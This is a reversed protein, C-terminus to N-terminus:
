KLQGAKRVYFQYDRHIDSLVTFDTRGMFFENVASDVGFKFPNPRLHDNYDDLFMVGGPKLMKWGWELDHRAGEYTHDGDIYIFDYECGSEFLCPLEERSDRRLKRFRGYYEDMNQDFGEKYPDQFSDVVDLFLRPYAHMLHVAARGEYTGVELALPQREFQGRSLHTLHRDWHELYGTLWDTTYNKM